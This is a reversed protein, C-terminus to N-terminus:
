PSMVLPVTSVLERSALRITLPEATEASGIAGVSGNENDGDVGFALLGDKLRALRTSRTNTV